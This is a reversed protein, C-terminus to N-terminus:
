IASMFPFPMIAVSTPRYTRKFGAKSSKEREREREREREIELKGIKSM